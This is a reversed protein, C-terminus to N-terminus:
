IEALTKIGYRKKEIACLSSIVLESKIGRPSNLMTNGGDVATLYHTIFTVIM